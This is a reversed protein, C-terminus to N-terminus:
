ERGNVFKARYKVVILDNTAPMEGSGEEIVRYQLGDPLTKVGTASSNRALFAKGEAKNRESQQVAGYAKAQKFLPEIESEKLKTPKGELVDKLGEVLADADVDASVRQLQGAMRMGLAYSVKDKEPEPEDSLRHARAQNLVDVLESDKITTEKGELVDRLGQIFKELDVDADTRKRQMGLNMGLAYSVQQKNPAVPKEGAPKSEEGFSSLALLACLATTAHFKLKMFLM